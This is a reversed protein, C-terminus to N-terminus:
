RNKLWEQQEATLRSAASDNQSYVRQLASPDRKRWMDFAAKSLNHSPELTMGYEKGLGGMTDYISTGIGQRRMTEDIKPGLRLSGSDEATVFTRGVPKSGQLVDLWEQQPNWKMSMGNNLPIESSRMTSQFAGPRPGGAPITNMAGLLLNGLIEKYGGPGTVRQRERELEAGKRDIFQSGYSMLDELAGV